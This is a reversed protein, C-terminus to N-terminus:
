GQCPEGPLPVGVCRVQQLPSGWQQLRGIGRPVMNSVRCTVMHRLMALSICVWSCAQLVPVFDICFCITLTHVANHKMLGRPHCVVCIVVVLPKALIGIQTMSHPRCLHVGSALRTIFVVAVAASQHRKSQSWCSQQMKSTVYCVACSELM